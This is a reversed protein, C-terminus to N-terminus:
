AKTWADRSQKMVAFRIYSFVLRALVWFVPLFVPLLIDGPLPATCQLLLERCVM